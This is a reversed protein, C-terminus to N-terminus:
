QAAKNKASLTVCDSNFKERACAIDFATQLHMWYHPDNDFFVALRLATDATIARKGNVIESIRMPSVAIAKALRYQSINLPKLFQSVLIEGPAIAKIFQKKLVWRLAM